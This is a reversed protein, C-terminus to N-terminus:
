LTVASKGLAPYAVVEHAQQELDDANLTV